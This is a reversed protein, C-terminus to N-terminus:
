TYADTLTDPVKLYRKISIKCEPNISSLL